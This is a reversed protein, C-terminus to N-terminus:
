RECPVANFTTTSSKKFNRLFSDIFRGLLCVVMIELIVMSMQAIGYDFGMNNYYCGTMLWFFYTAQALFLLGPSLFPSQSLRVYLSHLAFASIFLFLLGGLWGFFAYTVGWITWPESNFMDLLNEETYDGYIIALVRGTPFIADSFPDGPLMINLYSKIAYSITFYPSPKDTKPSSIILIPYDITGLRDLIAVLFDSLDSGNLVQETVDISQSISFNENTLIQMRSALGIGYGVISLIIALSIVLTLKLAKLRINGYRCMLLVLFILSVRVFAGKSGMLTIQISYLATSFFLMLRDLKTKKDEILICTLLVFFALDNSILTKIAMIFFHNGIKEHNAITVNLDFVM